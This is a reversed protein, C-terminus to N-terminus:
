RPAKVQDRLGYQRKPFTLTISEGTGGAFIRALPHLLLYLLVLIAAFSLADGAWQIAHDQHARAICTQLSNTELDCWHVHKAHIVCDWLPSRTMEATNM